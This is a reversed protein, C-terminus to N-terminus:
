CIYSVPQKKTQNNFRKISLLSREREPFSQTSNNQGQAYNNQQIQPIQKIVGHKKDDQISRTIRNKSLFDSSCFAVSTSALFLMFITIHTFTKM